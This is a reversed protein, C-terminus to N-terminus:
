ALENGPVRSARKFEHNLSEVARSLKKVESELHIIDAVNDQALESTTDVVTGLRSINAIVILAAFVVCLTLVFSM